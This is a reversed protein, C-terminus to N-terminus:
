QKFIKITQIKVTHIYECTVQSTLLMFSLLCSSASSLVHSISDLLNLSLDRSQWWSATDGQTVCKVERLRLKEDTFPDNM